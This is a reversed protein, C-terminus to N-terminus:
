SAADWNGGDEILFDSMEVSAIPAVAEDWQVSYFTYRDGGFNKSKYMAMDAKRLLEAKTKGDWPACAIGVSATVHIDQDVFYRTEAIVRKLRSALMRGTKPTDFDTQIVVFEDGGIRAVTDGARVTSQMSEAIRKLVLDGVSHGFKDNIPKFGDLDIYHLAIASGQSLGNLAKELRQEFLVRNPLGTLQDHHALYSVLEQNKRQETVDLYSSVFGGEPLPVGRVELITGNPRTREFIHECRKEVLEMRAQVLNEVNGKGYEGRRANFEFMQSLTPPGNAFLEDPYDLLKRQQENCLILRHAQDFLMLGGPFNDIVAELLRVRRQLDVVAQPVPELPTDIDSYDIWAKM